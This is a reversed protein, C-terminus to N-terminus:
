GEVKTFVVRRKVGKYDTRKHTHSGGVPLDVLTQNLAMADATNKATLGGGTLMLVLNVFAKHSHELRKVDNVHVEKQGPDTRYGDINFRPM